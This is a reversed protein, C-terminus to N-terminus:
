RRVLIDNEIAPLPVGLESAYAEIRPDDRLLQMPRWYSLLWPFWPHRQEHAAQLNEMCREHDRMACYTLTLTFANNTEGSIRRALREADEARGTAALAMTLSWGWFSSDRLRELTDIAEDHRGLDSYTLGLVVWAVQYGERLALTEQAEAIAREHQGAHMYQYALWSTYFPSLPNLAKTYDGYRLSEDHRHLLELLWAYHYHADVLSPNLELSHRYYKEAAVFDWEYYTKVMGMALQAEALDPDIALARQAADRARLSAGEVPFPSHGLKAYGIALGAYALASTPDNEVAETLIEIARRRARPTERRLQVMGKLYAEYTASSPEGTAALRRQEEPTLTVKVERAVSSAVEKQVDILGSFDRTYSDAWLPLETEVDVLEVNVRVQDGERLVSGTLVKDVGLLGHVESLSMGPDVRLTSFRSVVRFQTIRSLTTILESHLGASLFDQSDDGSLNELPLVAIATSSNEAAYWPGGAQMPGRWIENVMGVIVVLGIVALAGIVVLDSQRLELTEEGTAPATRVIGRSTVDYRWGFVLALPMGLVVAIWVFRLSTDPIGFSEFMLDAVQLVVWAGVIYLGATRFVRRRRAERIFDTVKSM